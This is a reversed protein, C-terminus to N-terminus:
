GHRQFLDRYLWHEESPDEDPEIDEVVEVAASAEAADVEADASAVTALQEATDLVAEEVPQGDVEDAADDIREALDEAVEAVHEEVEALDELTEAALDQAEASEGAEVLAHASAEAAVEIAEIQEGIDSTPEAEEIAEAMVEVAEPDDLPIIAEPGAEGVTVDVGADVVGGEAMGYQNLDEASQDSVEVIVDVIYPSDPELEAEREKAYAEAEAESDFWVPESEPLYGPMNEVVAWVQHQQGVIGGEAMPDRDSGIEHWHAHMTELAGLPLSRDAYRGHRSQIHQRLHIAKTETVSRAPGAYGPGAQLTVPHDIVGGAAMPARDKSQVRVRNGRDQQQKAYQAFDRATSTVTHITDGTSRPDNERTVTYRYAYEIGAVGGAAMPEREAWTSPRDERPPPGVVIPWAELGEAYEGVTVTGGIHDQIRAAEAEAEARTGKWWKLTVEAVV